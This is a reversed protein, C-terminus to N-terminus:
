KVINILGNISNFNIINEVWQFSTTLELIKYSDNGCLPTFSINQNQFIITGTSTIPLTTGTFTICNIAEIKEQPKLKYSLEDYAQRTAGSSALTYVSLNGTWHPIDIEWSYPTQLSTGIWKGVLANNKITEIRSIIKNVFIDANQKNSINKFNITSLWTALITIIAIVALLETLTFWNCKKKM